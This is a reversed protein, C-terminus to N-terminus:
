MTVAGNASLTITYSRSADATGITVSGLQSNWPIGRGTYGTIDNPTTFTTNTLRVGKEMRIVGTPSRAGSTLSLRESTDCTDNNNDDVCLTYSGGANVDGITEKTFQILVVKNLKIAEVKARKFNIVLERAAARLRYKPLSANIMPFSVAGLTALIGIVIMLELLTFGSSKTNNKTFLEM